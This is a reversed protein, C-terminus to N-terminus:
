CGNLWRYGPVGHGRGRREASARLTDVLTANLLRIAAPTCLRTRIQRSFLNSSGAGVSELVRIGRYIRRETYNYYGSAVM